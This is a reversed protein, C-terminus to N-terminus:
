NARQTEARQEAHGAAVWAINYSPSRKPPSTFPARPEYRGAGEIQELLQPVPPLAVDFM